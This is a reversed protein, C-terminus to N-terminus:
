ETFIRTVVPAEIENIVRLGCVKNGKADYRPQIDYGYAKGGANEGKIALDQLGRHIRRSLDKSYMASMTGKLGIHLETIEGEILTIVDIRRHKLRKYIHAIHEQDRSLRDISETLVIDFRNSQAAEMLEQLGPRFMDTGTLARDEFQVVIEWGEREAKEALLRQQQQISSDKQNEDSYRSYTAVRIM